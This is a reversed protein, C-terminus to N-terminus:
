SMERDLLRKNLDSIKINVHNAEKFASDAATIAQDTKSTNESIAETLEQHQQAVVNALMQSSEVVKKAVMQRDELEWQRLREERERQQRANFVLTLFTAMQAIITAVVGIVLALSTDAGNM